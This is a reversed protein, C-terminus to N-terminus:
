NKKPLSLEIIMIWGYKGIFEPKLIFQDFKDFIPYLYKFLKTKRFPVLFLSFLHFYKIKVGNFHKKMIPISEVGLIHDVEWPTRLHPTLKRYLHILPNHRLAEVCIMKAEPKMVRSLESLAKPLDVHHLAGYEIGIDFTSDKFNMNEGDMLQFNCNSEVGKLKSNEKANDLGEKSIDIGTVDAGYQAAFIGNEGNGCAWDLVKMNKKVNEKIWHEKFLESSKTVSYYKMNSFHYEFEEKKKVLEKKDFDLNSDTEREFGQLISRRKKSHEIEELKRKELNKLDLSM